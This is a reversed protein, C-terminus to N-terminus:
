PTPMMLHWGRTKYPTGSSILTPRNGLKQVIVRMATRRFHLHMQVVIHFISRATPVINRDHIRISPSSLILIVGFHGTTHFVESRSVTMAVGTIDM